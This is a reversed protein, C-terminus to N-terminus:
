AFKHTFRSDAGAGPDDDCYALERGKGDLLRMVPDLRSGLRQAVVEFSIQQGKNATFRYFDFSLEDCMGDVAIPPKLPQANTLSKNQGNETISPLDDIMLLHLSSVGNTTALRLAGIGVQVEPPVTLKCAVTKGDPSADNTRPLFIFSAPFSTWLNMAG